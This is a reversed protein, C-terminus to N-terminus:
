QSFSARGTGQYIQGSVLYLHPIYLVEEAVQTLEFQPVIVIKQARSCCYDFTLCQELKSSKADNDLFWCITM